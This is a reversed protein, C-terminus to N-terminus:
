SDVSWGSRTLWSGYVDLVGWSEPRVCSFAGALGRASLFRRVGDM